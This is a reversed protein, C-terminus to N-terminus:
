VRMPMLVYLVDPQDVPEMLTPSAPDILSMKTNDATIEGLIDSLYSSNFGIDLEPGDYSIDLDEVASGADPNNVSVTLRGAPGFSLKAARGRDSSVTAVRNVASRFETTGVIAVQNSAPPIVRDYDPFTGDILKSVVLTDGIEFAIKERSVTCHVSECSGLLKLVESVTKRPVIVGDMQEAGAPLAIDCRALRHGDTAVTRLVKETAGATHLYIGNLYYRTEETSIAFQAKAFLKALDAGALDFKSGDGARMLEPFDIVPLTQLTCTSKGAKIKLVNKDNQALTVDFKKDIKSVFAHFTDANVTTSLKEGEKLPVKVSVMIDLDTGTVTMSNGDVELKVNALIPITNRREVVGRLDRLRAALDGAAVTITM